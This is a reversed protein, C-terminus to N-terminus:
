QKAQRSATRNSNNATTKSFGGVYAIVCVQGNADRQSISLGALHYDPNFLDTRHGRSPTGDDIILGIVNNRSTDMKYIISEGIAGLWKGYRDVRDNPKTGDSGVHGMIGNTKLDVAHDRAALCAPESPELAAVPKAARLFNIAEDVARLGDATVIARKSGPLLLREGQYYKKFEEIYAAYQQPQTRALNMESLLESETTSLFSASAPQTDSSGIAPSLLSILCVFAVLPFLLIRSKM